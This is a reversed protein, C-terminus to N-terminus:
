ERAPDTSGTLPWTGARRTVVGGPWTRDHSTPIATGVSLTLDGVAVWARWDSPHKPDRKLGCEIYRLQQRWERPLWRKLRM